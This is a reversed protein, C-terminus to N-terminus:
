EEHCIAVHRVLNAPDIMLVCHHCQVRKANERRLRDLVTEARKTRASNPNFGRPLDKRSDTM